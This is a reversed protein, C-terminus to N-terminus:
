FILLRWSCVKRRVGEAKVYLVPHSLTLAQRPLLYAICIFGRRRLIARLTERPWAGQGPGYREYPEGAYRGCPEAACLYGALHNSTHNSTYKAAISSKHSVADEDLKHSEAELKHSETTAVSWRVEAGGFAGFAGLGAAPTRWEGPMVGVCSPGHSRPTTQATGAVSSPDAFAGSLLIYQM